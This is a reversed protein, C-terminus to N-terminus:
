KWTAREDTPRVLQNRECMGCESLELKFASAIPRTRSYLTHSRWLVLRTSHTSTVFESWKPCVACTHLKYQPHNASDGISHRSQQEQKAMTRSFFIKKQQKKHSRVRTHASQQLKERPRRCQIENDNRQTRGNKGNQTNCNIRQQKAPVCEDRTWRQARTAM